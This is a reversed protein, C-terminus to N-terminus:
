KDWDDKSYHYGFKSKFDEEEDDYYDLNEKYHYDKAKSEKVDDESKYANTGNLQKIQAHAEKISAVVIELSDLMATFDYKYQYDPRPSFKKKWFDYEKFHWKKMYDEYWSLDNDIPHSISILHDMVDNIDHYINRLVRLAHKRVYFNSYDRDVTQFRQVKKLAKAIKRNVKLTESQLNPYEESLELAKDYSISLAEHLVNLAEIIEPYEPEPEPEPEVAPSTTFQIDEIVIPSDQQVIYLVVSSFERLGQAPINITYVSAGTGSVTVQETIYYPVIDPFDNKGLLLYFETDQLNTTPYLRATITISGGTGFTLPYESNTDKYLFGGWTEAPQVGYFDTQFTYTDRIAVTGGFPAFLCEPCIEPSPTAWFPAEPEPFPPNPSPTDDLKVEVSTITGSILEGLGGDNIDIAIVKDWEFASSSVSSINLTDQGDNYLNAWSGISLVVTNNSTDYLTISYTFPTNSIMSGYVVVESASSWNSLDLPNDWYGSIVNGFAQASFTIGGNSLISNFTDYQQDITFGTGFNLINTPSVPEPDVVVEPTVYISVGQSGLGGTQTVRISNLNYATGWDIITDETDNIGITYDNFPTPTPSSASLLETWSSASVLGQSGDLTDILIMPVGTFQVNSIQEEIFAYGWVGNPDYGVSIASSLLNLDTDVLSIQAANAFLAGGIDRGTGWSVIASPTVEMKIYVANAEGEVIEASVERLNDSTTTEVLVAVTGDSAAEGSSQYSILDKSWLYEVEVDEITSNVSHQIHLKGDRIKPNICQKSKRLPNSGFVYELANAIGDSDYDGKYNHIEGQLKHSKMWQQYSESYLTQLLVLLFITYRLFNM